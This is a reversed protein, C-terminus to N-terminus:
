QVRKVSWGNDYNKYDQITAASPPQENNLLSANQVLGKQNNQVATELDDLMQARGAPNLSEPIGGSATIQKVIPIDMRALGSDKIKGMISHSILTRWEQTANAAEHNMFPMNSVGEQLGALGYSGSPVKSNIEKLRKIDKLMQDTASQGTIVNKEANAQSTALIDAKIKEAPSQSIGLIPPTNGPMVGHHPLYPASAADSSAIQQPSLSPNPQTGFDPTEASPPRPVQQGQDQMVNQFTRPAAISNTGGVFGQPMGGGGPAPFPAPAPLQSQQVAAPTLPSVTGGVSYPTSNQQNYDSPRMYHNAGSSNPIPIPAVFPNEATKQATTTAGALDVTNKLGAALAEKQGPTLAISDYFAKGAGPAFRDLMAGKLADQPSLGIGPVGNNAASGSADGIGNSGFVNGFQQGQLQLAMKQAELNQNQGIAGSLGRALYELPSHRVVVKGAMENDAPMEANKALAQAMQQRRYIDMIQALQAQDNTPLFKVDQIPM